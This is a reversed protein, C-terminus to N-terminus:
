VLEHADEQYVPVAYKKVLELSEEFHEALDKTLKVFRKAKELGIVSGTRYIASIDAPTINEIKALPEYFALGYKQAYYDIIQNRVYAPPPTLGLIFDWREPRIVELPLRRIQNATAIFYQETNRDQLFSLLEGLVRADVGSGHHQALAKEIEDIFVFCKGFQELTKLASRLRAESEGVYKSYVASINFKVVPYELALNKAILTKGTGPVGLLLTGRGVSSEYMKKLLEIVESLGVAREVSKPRFVELVGGSQKLIRERYSLVDGEEQAKYLELTTLGEAYVLGEVDEREPFYDEIEEIHPRLYFPLELDPSIVFVKVPNGELGYKESFQVIEDPSFPMLNRFIFVKEERNKVARILDEKKFSVGEFVELGESYVVPKYETSHKINHEQIAKLLKTIVRKFDFSRVLFFNKVKSQLAKEYLSKM